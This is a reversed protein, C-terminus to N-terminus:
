MPHRGTNPMRITTDARTNTSLKLSSGSWPRGSTCISKTPTSSAAVAIMRMLKPKLLRLPHPRASARGDAGNSMTPSDGAGAIITTPM